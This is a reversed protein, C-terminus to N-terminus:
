RSPSNPETTRSTVPPVPAATTYSPTPWAVKSALRAATRGRPM